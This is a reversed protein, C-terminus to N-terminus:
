RELKKEVLRRFLFMNLYVWIATQWVLFFIPVWLLYPNLGTVLYHHLAKSFMVSFIGVTSCMVLSALLFINKVKLSKILFFSQLTILFYFTRFFINDFSLMTLQLFGVEEYHDYNSWSSLDIYRRTMNTSSDTRETPVFDLYVVLAILAFVLFSIIIAQIFLRKKMPEAITNSM